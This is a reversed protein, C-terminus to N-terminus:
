LKISSITYNKNKTQCPLESSWINFKKIKKEMLKRITGNLNSYYLLFSLSILKFFQIWYKISPLTFADSKVLKCSKAMNVCLNKCFTYDSRYNWTNIWFDTQIQYRALVLIVREMAEKTAQWNSRTQSNMTFSSRYFFMIFIFLLEM